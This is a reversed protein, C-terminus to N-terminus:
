KLFFLLIVAIGVIARYITFIKFDSKKLYNLLFKIVIIGVIFSALIGVIFPILMGSNIFTERYVPDLFDKFKYATAALVIPTSLLFSYKAASERKVGLTRAMTM